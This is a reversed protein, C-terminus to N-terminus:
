SELPKSYTKKKCALLAKGFTELLRKSGIPHLEIKAATRHAAAAVVGVAGAGAGVVTEPFNRLVDVGAGVRSRLLYGKLIYNSDTVSVTRM